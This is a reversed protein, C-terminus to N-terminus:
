KHRALSSPTAVVLVLCTKSPEAGTLTKPVSVLFAIVLRLAVARIIPGRPESCIGKYAGAIRSPQILAVSAIVWPRCTAMGRSCAVCPSPRPLAIDRTRPAVAAGTLSPCATVTNPSTVFASFEKTKSKPSRSKRLEKAVPLPGSVRRLFLSPPRERGM